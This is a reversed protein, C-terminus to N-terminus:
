VVVRLPSCDVLVSAVVLKVVSANISLLSFQKVLQSTSIKTWYCVSAFHHLLAWWANLVPPSFIIVVSTDFTNATCVELHCMHEQGASLAFSVSERAHDATSLTGKM